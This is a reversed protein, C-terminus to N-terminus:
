QHHVITIIYLKWVKFTTNLSGTLQKVVPSNNNISVTTNSYYTIISWLYSM